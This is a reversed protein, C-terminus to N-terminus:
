VHARGIQARVSQGAGNKRAVTLGDARRRLLQDVRRAVEVDVVLWRAGHDAQLREASCARRTGIVLRAREEVENAPDAWADDLLGVHRGGIVAIREHFVIVLSARELFSGTLYSTSPATTVTVM